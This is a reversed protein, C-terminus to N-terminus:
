IEGPGFVKYENLWDVVSLNSFISALTMEGERCDVVTLLSFDSGFIVITLKTM